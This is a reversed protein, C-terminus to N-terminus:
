GERKKAAAREPDTAALSKGLVAVEAGGGTAGLAGIAATRVAPDRSANLLATVAPIAAPDGRDALARLLEVQREPTRDALLAAFRRTADEGKAGHRIGELGLSRFDADERGVLELIMGVADQAIARDHPAFALVLLACVLFIRM